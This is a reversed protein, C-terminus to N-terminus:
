RVRRLVNMTDSGIMVDVHIPSQNAGAAALEEVSLSSGGEVGDPYANGFAIHCTANEDFLTEYFLLGSQYIPSSCDVLAVEGLQRAGEIGFLEDLVSQGPRLRTNSSKM